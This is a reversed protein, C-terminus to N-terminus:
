PPSSSAGPYSSEAEAKGGQKPHHSPIALVEKLANRSAAYACYGGFAPAYKSPTATFLELHVASAFRYTLGQHMASFEPSGHVATHQTFYAVADYGQLALDAETKNLLTKTTPASGFRFVLGEWNGTAKAMNEAQHCCLVLRCSVDLCLWLLVVCYLEVRARCSVYLVFRTYRWVVRCLVVRACRYWVICRSGLM